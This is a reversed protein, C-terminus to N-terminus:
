IIPVRRDLIGSFPRSTTDDFPFPPHTHNNSAHHRSEKLLKDRLTFTTIHFGFWMRRLIVSRAHFKSPLQWVSLHFYILSKTLQHDGEKPKASTLEKVTILSPKRM